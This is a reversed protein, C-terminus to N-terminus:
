VSDVVERDKKKREREPSLVGGGSGRFFFSCTKKEKIRGYENLYVKKNYPMIVIKGVQKKKGRGLVIFCYVVKRLKREREVCFSRVLSM